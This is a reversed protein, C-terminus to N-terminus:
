LRAQNFVDGLDEVANRSGVRLDLTRFAGVLEKDVNGSVTSVASESRDTWRAEPVGLVDSLRAERGHVHNMLALVMELVNLLFSTGARMNVLMLADRLDEDRLDVVFSRGGFNQHQTNETSTERYASEWWCSPHSLFANLVDLISTMTGVRYDILSICVELERTSLFTGHCANLVDLKEQLSYQLELTAEM